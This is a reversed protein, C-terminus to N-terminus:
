RRNSLTAFASDFPHAVNYQLSLSCGEVIMQVLIKRVSGNTYGIWGYDFWVFLGLSSKVFLVVLSM